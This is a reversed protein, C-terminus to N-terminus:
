EIEAQLVEGPKSLNKVEPRWEINSNKKEKGNKEEM